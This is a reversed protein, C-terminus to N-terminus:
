FNAVRKMIQNVFNQPDRGDLYRDLLSRGPPPQVELCTSIAKQLANINGTEVKLISPIEAIGGACLTSVVSTNLAVMQLLINPFGEEISSVICVKAHKFYVYPNFVHGMLIVNGELGLQHIQKQLNDREPGDGLIIL